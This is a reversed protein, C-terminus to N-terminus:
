IFLMLIAQYCAWNIRDLNKEILHIANPNKSIWFWNIKGPNQELIHIANPNACLNDWKLKDEDIWSRLNLFM